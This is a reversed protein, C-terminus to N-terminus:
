PAPQPQPAAQESAAAPEIPQLRMMVGTSTASIASPAFERLEALRTALPVMGDYRVRLQVTGNFFQRAEVSRVGSLARLARIFEALRSFRAFPGVVVDMGGFAPAAAVSEPELHSAPQAAPSEVVSTEGLLARAREQAFATLKRAQEEATRLQYANAEQVSALVQAAGEESVSHLEAAAARAEELRRENLQRTGAVLADARRQAVEVLAQARQSPADGAVEGPTAAQNRPQSEQMAAPSWRRWRSASTAGFATAGFRIISARHADLM